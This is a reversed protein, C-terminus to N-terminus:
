EEPNVDPNPKEDFVAETICRCNIINEPTAGSGDKDGPYKLGNQFEDDIDITETFDHTERVRDDFSNVWTLRKVGLGKYAVFRGGNTASNIETQAIVTARGKAINFVGRIDDAIEDTTRGADVGARIADRVATRITEVPEKLRPMATELWAVAHGNRVDFKAAIDIEDYVTQGGVKLAEEVWPRSLVLFKAIWQRIDFYEEAKQEVFAKYAQEFNALVESRLEFIFRGIKAAYKDEIPKAKSWVNQWRKYQRTAIIDDAPPVRDKHESGCACAVPSKIAKDIHSMLRKASAAFAATQETQSPAITGAPQLSFPIWWQRTWPYRELDYGLQMRENVDYLPVGKDILKMAIDLKENESEQLEHISKTNFRVTVGPFYIALMKNVVSVMSDMEPMLKQTWFVRMAERMNAYNFGDTLGVVAKPVEYVALIEDVTMKKREINQIEQPSLNAGKYKAGGELLLLGDGRMMDRYDQKTRNYQETTFEKDTEIAGTLFNGARLVKKELESATADIEVGSIAAGIPSLGRWMNDPDVYKFHVVEDPSLEYSKAGDQYQWAVLKKDDSFLATMGNPKLFEILIRVDDNNIRWFCEGRIQKYLQTGEILQYRDLMQSPSNFLEIAPHTTLKTEGRYFEVPVRAINRAIKNAAVYVWSHRKYANARTISGGEGTSGSELRDFLAPLDNLSLSKIIFNRFGTKIRKALSM